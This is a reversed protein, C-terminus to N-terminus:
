WMSYIYNFLFWFFFSRSTYGELLMCLVSCGRSSSFAGDDSLELISARVEQLLPGVWLLLCGSLSAISSFVGGM